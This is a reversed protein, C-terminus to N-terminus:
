HQLYQTCFRSNWILGTKVKIALFKLLFTSVYPYSIYIHLNHVYIPVGIAFFRNSIHKRDLTFLYNILKTPITSQCMHPYM